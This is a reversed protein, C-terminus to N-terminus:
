SGVSPWGAVLVLALVAVDILVGIWGQESLKRRTGDRFLAFVLASFVGSGAVVPRWWEQGLLLGAGGVVFAAAAAHAHHAIAYNQVVVAVASYDGEEGHLVMGLLCALKRRWRLVPHKDDAVNRRPNDAARPVHAGEVEPILRRTAAGVGKKVSVSSVRAIIFRLEIRDRQVCALVGAAVDNEIHRLARRPCVHLQM